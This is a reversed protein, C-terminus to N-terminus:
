EFESGEIPVIKNNDNGSTRNDGIILKWTGHAKYSDILASPVYLTGGSRNSAFPTNALVNTYSLGCVSATRIVLKNLKGCNNFGYSRIVTANTLECVTLNNCKYFAYDGVINVDTKISEITRDIVANLETNGGSGGSDGSGGSGGEEIEAKLAEIENMWPKIENPTGVNGGRLNYEAKFADIDNKWEKAEYPTSM